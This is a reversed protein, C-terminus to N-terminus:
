PAALLSLFTNLLSIQIQYVQDPHPYGSVGGEQGSYAEPIEVGGLELSEKPFSDRISKSFFWFEGM